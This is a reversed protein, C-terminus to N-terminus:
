LLSMFGYTLDSVVAGLHATPVKVSIDVIPKLAETGTHKLLKRTAEAACATIAGTSTEPTIELGTQLNTNTVDVYGSQLSISMGRM